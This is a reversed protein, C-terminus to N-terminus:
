YGQTHSVEHLLQEGARMAKYNGIIQELATNVNTLAAVHPTILVKPHTWFPHKDSLPEQHFVDLAAGSLHNKDLLDILDEDIVQPGRGVNIFYAGQPLQRLVARNLLGTTDTTLPLISVLVDTLPLMENLGEKGHFCNIKEISKESRSWGNVRFGLNAFRDAVLQGIQGLGLIGVCTNAMTKYSRQQWHKQKQQHVYRPIQKMYGMTLALVFEWLDNALQPDVIRTVKVMDSVENKSFIHYVSAGLSQIVKTNPFLELVGREPKWCVIMEVANADTVHPFVEVTEEPLANAIAQAWPKPDKNNCILLISM